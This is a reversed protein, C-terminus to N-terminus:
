LKVKFSGLGNDKRTYGAPIKLDADNVKAAGYRTVELVTREEKGNEKVQTIVTKLPMGKVFMRRVSDQKEAYRANTAPLVTAASGVVEALPNRMLVLSPDYYYETEVTQRVPSTFGMAGVEMTSHEIIRVHQTPRGAITEGAGLKETEFSSSRLEM